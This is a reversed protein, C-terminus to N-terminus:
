AETRRLHLDAGDDSAPRRAVAGSEFGELFGAVNAGLADVAYGGELVIVSPIELSGIEFAITPYDHTGLRFDGLPDDVFTDMGLPVVLFGPDIEGVRALATNLTELYAAGDIGAPLPFNVNSADASAGGREDSRGTFYPYQREPDGHLSITLVDPENWFIQQTGNGHHFDLDLVAVRSGTRTRLWSAAIAANNLFCYGGAFNAGAHHGPPRCAAFAAPHGDLVFDAATLACDAAARAAAYTGEVLPTATDFTYYGARGRVTAPPRIPAELLRPLAVTDPVVPHTWGHASWDAWASELYDLYNSEHIAGVPALGHEVPERFAHGAHRLVEAIAAARAPSEFVAIERGMVLEREPNHLRHSETFVVLM